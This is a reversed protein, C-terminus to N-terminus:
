NFIFKNVNFVHKYSLLYFDLEKHFMWLRQQICWSSGVKSIFLFLVKEHPLICSSCRGFLNVKYLSKSKHLIKKYCQILSAASSEEVIGMSHFPHKWKIRDKSETKNNTVMRTNKNSHLGNNHIFYSIQYNEKISILNIDVLNM